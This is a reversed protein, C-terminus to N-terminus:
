LLSSSNHLRLQQAIHRRLSILDIPTSKTFRRLAAFQVRLEDGESTACFVQKAINEAKFLQTHALVTAAQLPIAWKKQGQRLLGKQIRLLMCELSYIAIVLDSLLMLLEQQNGLEERFKQVAAAASLLFLKKINALIHFESALEGTENEELSQFSTLEAAVKQAAPILALQNKMARKLLQGTILLRNIENTGEFIRNIRADRYAREVPYEQSYGYGGHIQVAEDVVLDLIESNAVKIISCEVVFDELAVLTEASATPSRKDIGAFVRDIMGATRYVMSEACFIQVAMEALKHQIAGFEGIVKGFQRRENAYRVATDAVYRVGMVVSAGLKLRGFNLINFAIKHGKGVEGLVNEIPVRADQLVLSRTSSGHIGMKHEEDGTSIGSFSREVIFGTFHEGNVKAFVIFVDAFGANTIWMKTGNLVYHTGEANLTATSKANLADSGSDAETLAYAAIWEASCLKPLYRRKQEETGFYLIPLTGIGTHAGFTTAFSGYRGTKESIITASIQDLGLGGYEEPISAGVLGIEAAKRLLVENIGGVKEELQQIRPVVENEMFQEATRGIMEQEETFDEPTFVDDPCHSEILFSAGRYVTQTSSSM